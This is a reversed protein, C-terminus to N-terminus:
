PRNQSNIAMRLNTAYSSIREILNNNGIGEDIERIFASGVVVGDALSAIEAAQAPTSIGFGIVTPLSSFKRIQEMEERIEEVAPKQTGTVGTISVLYLFGSASAAIQRIRERGTTPAVLLIQKIGLPDSFRRLEFAEEPPLDVVLVGDVGAEAARRSFRENGYSFIPNYYGFLVIPIKSNRRLESVLALVKELTAGEKLARQSAGQIIPGDATPDSFPVGLEVIDVGAKDLALVMERTADLSPYGATLFVILAKEGREKLAEFKDEIRGM